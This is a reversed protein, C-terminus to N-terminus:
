PIRSSRAFLHRHVQGFLQNFNDGGNLGFTQSRARRCCHHARESVLSAARSGSSIDRHQSCRTEDIVEIFKSLLTRVLRDIQVLAASRDPADRDSGARTSFIGLQQWLLERRNQFGINPGYCRQPKSIESKAGLADGQRSFRAPAAFCRNDMVM